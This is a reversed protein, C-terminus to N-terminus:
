TEEIEFSASTGGISFELYEGSKHKAWLEDNVKFGAWWGVIQHGKDDKITVGLADQKEKTFMMSEVLRGTGLVKHSDGHDRAELVYEYAARELEEPLIMDGQKDIILYEGKQVVSAWGFIMQEEDDAKRVEFPLEWEIEKALAEDEGSLRLYKVDIQSEGDLWSAAARHTGDAIINKGNHRVVVPLKDAGNMRISEVKTPSVRPQISVLSNIPVKRQELEDPNTVAAMYRRVHQDPISGLAHPDHPFPAHAGGDKHPKLARAAMKSVDGALADNFSVTKKISRALEVALRAVQKKSLKPVADQCFRTWDADTMADDSKLIHKDDAWEPVIHTGFLDIMKQGVYDAGKTTAYALVAGAVAGAPGAVIGGGAAGAAVTLTRAALRVHDENDADFRVKDGHSEIAGGGTWQGDTDRAEGPDFKGRDAITLFDVFHKRDGVGNVEAMIDAFMKMAPKGLAADLKSNFDPEVKPKRKRPKKGGGANSVHVDGVVATKNAPPVDGHLHRRFDPDRASLFGTLSPSIGM